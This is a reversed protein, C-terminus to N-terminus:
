LEPWSSKTLNARVFLYEPFVCRLLEQNLLAYVVLACLM